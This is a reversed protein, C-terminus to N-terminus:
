RLTIEQQLERVRLSSVLMPLGDVRRVEFEHFGETVDMYRSIVALLERRLTEMAEPALDVRDQTLANHLRRRADSKPHNDRVAPRRMVDFM